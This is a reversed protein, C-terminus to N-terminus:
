QVALMLAFPDSFDGYSDEAQAFLTYTGPSLNVTFTWIGLNPQTGSCLLTCIGNPEGSVTVETISSRSPNVDTVNSANLTIPVSVESVDAPPDIKLVFGSGPTTQYAGPTTPFNSSWTQGGVYANGASDLAIGFGDDDRTGGLYTSFLLGSCSPNLTTMFADYGGANMAQLPNRTPFTTSNTWGTLEADGQSDVAIAAGGSRTGGGHTRGGDIYTSYVLAAGKANLKTVFVDSPDGVVTGNNRFSSRPQFVGPTTPFNISATSGTIYANGASDVMIGGSSQQVDITATGSSVYGDAGSGGLYTSYVLSATGSLAPNFKAVFADEGGGGYTRQFAGSTTPFNASSTFGTLYANGAGDLAIGSGQDVGSSGGLYSAYVVSTTGSLAPNIKIFFPDSGQSGGLYATQFASATVPFGAGASGAVYLNGSGDVAIAGSYGLTYSYNITGPIYTSYVLRSGTPNLEAIFDQSSVSWSAAIANPTAPVNPNTGIVCADGFSDAAIGTGAGAGNGLYTAYILAGTPSFKAAFAGSGTTEFAGPTTPLGSGTNGTVYVDAASDV